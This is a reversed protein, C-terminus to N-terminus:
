SIPESHSALETVTSRHIARPASRGLMAERWITFIGAGIVIASGIIMNLTMVEDFVFVGILCVLV